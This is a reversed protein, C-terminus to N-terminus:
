ASEVRERGQGDVVPADEPSSLRRHIIEGVRIANAAITLSPNSGGSSPMFSSDVVYLNSV